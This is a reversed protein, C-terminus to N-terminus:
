RGHQTPCFFLVFTFYKGKKRPEKGAMSIYAILTPSSASAVEPITWPMRLTGCGASKPFPHLACSM